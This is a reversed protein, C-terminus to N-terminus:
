PTPQAGPPPAPLATAPVAPCTRPDVRQRAGTVTVQAPSQPSMAAATCGIQEVALRSLGGGPVSPTVVLQDGRVTTSFPVAGPPVDTTLGRAREKATPGAALLALTDAEPLPTGARTVATLRGKAVLYLTIAPSAAVRGSPPAGGTIVGSPRVGCGAVALLTVLGAALVRIRM